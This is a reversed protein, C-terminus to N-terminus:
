RHKHVSYQIGIKIERDGTNRTQNVCKQLM